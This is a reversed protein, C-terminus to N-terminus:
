RGKESTKNMVPDATEMAESVSNAMIGANFYHAGM